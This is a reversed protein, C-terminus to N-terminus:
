RIKSGSGIVFEFETAFAGDTEFQRLCKSVDGWAASRKADSLDLIVARYAGFAEQMMELTEHVSPLSLSARITKTRVDALGGDRLLRELVGDAGLAFLGPSGPPPPPKGAHRLLVAM